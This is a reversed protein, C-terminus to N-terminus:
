TQNKAVPTKTNSPHLVFLVQMNRNFILGFPFPYLKKVQIKAVKEIGIEKFVSDWQAQSFYNYISQIGLSRNGIWDMFSLIKHDLWSNSLHDKIVISGTSVRVAESILRQHNTTHHLVDVFTVADFSNDEFPITHGDFEQVQIEANPQVLIDIGQIRLQPKQQGVLHSIKGTGCGVDLLRGEDPLYRALYEVICNSQQPKVAKQHLNGIFKIFFSM